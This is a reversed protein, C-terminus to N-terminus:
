SKNVKEIALKLQELYKYGNIMDPELYAGEAWENWATVFLYEQNKNKAIRALQEIYQGFKEPTSRQVVRGKNARRPTDDFDVFGSLFTKEDSKKANTIIEQWCKDYDYFRITGTKAAIIDKIKNKIKDLIYEPSFPSYRIKYELHNKKYNERTACIIGNFGNKKALKDWYNSMKKITEFDNFPQFFAFVPKDDIKIYRKDKFFKLLYEFHIRWDEEGGYILEALIGNNNETNLNNDFKPAWDNAFKEKKWTRKWSGNDWIFMYNIDIDKNNLLLEAPKYLLKQNSSFWYHYIGFGYVGYNRALNAQWRIANIDDLSYYNNNLPVRPEKHNRFLPKATKTAIWDTFGEGWWKNNEETIHYQPLYNAIIKIDKM